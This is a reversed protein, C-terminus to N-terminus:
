STTITGSVTNAFTASLGQSLLQETVNHAWPALALHTAMTFPDPYRLLTVTSSPSHDKPATRTIPVITPTEELPPATVTLLEQTPTNFDVCLLDGTQLTIPSSLHLSTDTSVCPADLTDGGRSQLLWFTHIDAAVSDEFSISFDVTTM